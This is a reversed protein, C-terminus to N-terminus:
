GWGAVGYQMAWHPPVDPSHRSHPWHLEWHSGSTTRWCPLLPRVTLLHQVGTIKPKGQVWNRQQRGHNASALSEWDTMAFGSPQKCTDQLLELGLRHLKDTQDQEVWCKAHLHIRYACCAAQVCTSALDQVKLLGSPAMRPVDPPRGWLNSKRCALKYTM